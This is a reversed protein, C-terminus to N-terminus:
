RLQETIDSERLGEISQLGVLSRQGHFEELLFVQTLLWERRWPIKGVWSRVWIEWMAPPNKVM